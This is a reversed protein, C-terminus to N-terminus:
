LAGEYFVSANDFGGAQLVPEEAAAPEPAADRQVIALVAGGVEARHVAEVAADADIDGLICVPGGPDYVPPAPVFLAKMIGLDVEMVTPEVHVSPALEKVWWRATPVLGLDELLARKPQDLRATVARISAQDRPRSTWAAALLERGDTDWHDDADVAFDDVFCRGEHAFSLLFGHATRLALSGPRDAVTRMFAAHESRVGVAPRWFVPSFSEYLSRRQEMLSAAWDFDDGVMVDAM